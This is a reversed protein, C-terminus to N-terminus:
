QKLVLKKLSKDINFISQIFELTLYAFPSSLLVTFFISWEELMASGIIAVIIALLILIKYFIALYDRFGKEESQM